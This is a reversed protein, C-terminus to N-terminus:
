PCMQEETGDVLITGDGGVQVTHNPLEFQLTWSESAHDDLQQIAEASIHDELVFELEDPEKGKADAIAGILSEILM